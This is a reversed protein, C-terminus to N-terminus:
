ARDHEGAVTLVADLLAQPPPPCGPVFRSVPLIEGLGSVVLPSDWYPGGSIACVGFAIAAKPEPLEQWRNLIETQMGDTITGAVLLVQFDYNSGAEFIEVQSGEKPWALAVSSEVSCCALALHSVGIRM